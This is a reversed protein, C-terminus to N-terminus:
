EKIEYNVDDQLREIGDLLIRDLIPDKPNIYLIDYFFQDFQWDKFFIFANRIENSYQSDNCLCSELLNSFSISIAYDKQYESYYNYLKSILWIFKNQYLRCVQEGTILFTSYKKLDNLYYHDAFLTIFGTDACHILQAYFDFDSSVGNLDSVQHLITIPFGKQKEVIQKSNNPSRNLRFMSDEYYNITVLLKYYFYEIENHDKTDFFANKTAPDSLIQTIQKSYIDNKVNSVYYPYASKNNKLELVPIRNSKLGSKIDKFFSRYYSMCIDDCNNKWKYLRLKKLLNTIIGLSYFSSIARYKSEFCNSSVILSESPFITSCLDQIEKEEMEHTIAFPIISCVKMIKNYYVRICSFALKYKHSYDDLSFIYGEVQNCGFKMMSENDVESLSLDIPKSSYMESLMEILKIYKTENIKKSYAFTYSAYPISTKHLAVVIRNSLREWQNRTLDKKVYTLSDFSYDPSQGLAFVYIKVAAPQQEEIRKYIDNLARGHIMIDDALVCISSRLDNKYFNLAKDDIINKCGPKINHFFYKKFLCYLLHARRTSFVVFDTKLTHLEFFFQKMEYFTIPGLTNKLVTEVTKNTSNM